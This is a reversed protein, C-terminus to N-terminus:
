AEFPKIDLKTFPETLDLEVEFEENSMSFTIQSNVGATGGFQMLFDHLREAAYRPVYGILYGGLTVAVAKPDHPNNPQCVLQTQLKVTEDGDIQLYDALEKFSEKRYKEGVVRFSFSGDGGVAIATKQVHNALAKSMQKDFNESLLNNTTQRKRSEWWVKAAFVAAFGIAVAVLAADISGLVAAIFLFLLFYGIVSLCSM